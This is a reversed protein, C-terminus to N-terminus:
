VEDRQKREGDEDGSDDGAYSRALRTGAAMEDRLLDFKRQAERQRQDIYGVVAHKGMPGASIPRSAYGITEDVYYHGDDARRATWKFRLAELPGPGSRSYGDVEQDTLGAEPVIPAGHDASESSAEAPEVEAPKAPREFISAIAALAHDTPDRHSM